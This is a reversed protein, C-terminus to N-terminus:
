LLNCSKKQHDIATKLDGIHYMVTAFTTYCNATDEHMPGYIQHLLPLAENLLEFAGNLRGESLFSKGVELLDTADHSRPDISKIKPFIELIHESQFPAPSSFDFDSQRLQVGVQYCFSRLFPISELRSRDEESIEYKFKTKILAHISEWISKRTFNEKKKKNKRKKKSASAAGSDSPNKPPSEPQASILYNLYQAITPALRSEETGRLIENFNIRAARSIMEQICLNHFFSNRTTLAAIFGLYRVNIGRSHMLRVLTQGDTPMALYGTLETVLTPIMVNKLFEALAIVDRKAVLEQEDSLIVNAKTFLNPIYNFDLTPIEENLSEGNEKKESSEIEKKESSEIEKKESNEIGNNEPSELDEKVIEEKVEEKV